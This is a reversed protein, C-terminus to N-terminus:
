EIAKRHLELMNIFTLEMKKHSQPLNSTLQDLKEVMMSVDNLFASIYLCTSVYFSTYTSAM